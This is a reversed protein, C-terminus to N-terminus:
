PSVEGRSEGCKPTKFSRYNVPHFGGLCGRQLGGPQLKVGERPKEGFTLSLSLTAPLSLSLQEISYWTRLQPKMINWIPMMEKCVRLGYEVDGSCSM